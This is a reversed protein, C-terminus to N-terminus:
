QHVGKDLDARLQKATEKPLGSGLCYTRKGDLHIKEHVWLRSAGTVRVSAGCMPCTEKIM